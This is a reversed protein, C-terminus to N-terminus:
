YPVPLHQVPVFSLKIVCALLRLCIFVISKIVPILKTSIPTCLKYLMADAFAPNLLLIGVEPQEDGFSMAYLITFLFLPFNSKYILM